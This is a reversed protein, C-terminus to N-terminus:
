GKGWEEPNSCKTCLIRGVKYHYSFYVVRASLGSRKCNDCVIKSAENYQESLLRQTVRQQFEEVGEDIGPVFLADRGISSLILKKISGRLTEADCLPAKLLVANIYRIPDRVQTGSDIQDMVSKIAEVVNKNRFKRLLNRILNEEISPFLDKISKVLYDEQYIGWKISTNTISGKDNISVSKSVSTNREGHSGTETDTVSTSHKTIWQKADLLLSPHFSYFLINHGRGYLERERVDLPTGYETSVVIVQNKCLSETARTLATSKCGVEILQSRPIRDREKGFGVTRKFVNLIIKTESGLCYPIVEFNLYQIFYFGTLKNKLDM